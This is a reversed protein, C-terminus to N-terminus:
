EEAERFQNLLEMMKKDFTKCYVKWKEVDFDDSDFDLIKPYEMKATKCSVKIIKVITRDSFRHTEWV